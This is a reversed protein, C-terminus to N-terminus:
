GMDPAASNSHTATFNLAVGHHCEVETRIVEKAFPWSTFCVRCTIQNPHCVCGWDSGPPPPLFPPTCFVLTLETQDEVTGECM